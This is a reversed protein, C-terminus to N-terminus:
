QYLYRLSLGTLSEYKAIGPAAPPGRGGGGAPGALATLYVKSNWGAAPALGLAQPPWSIVTLSGSGIASGGAATVGQFRSKVVTEPIATGASTVASSVAPISGTAVIPTGPSYGYVRPM